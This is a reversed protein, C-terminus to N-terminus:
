GKNQKEGLKKKIAEALTENSRALESGFGHMSELFQAAYENNANEPDHINLYRIIAALDKEYQADETISSSAVEPGDGILKVQGNVILLAQDDTLIKVPRSATPICEALVERYKERNYHVSLLFPVLNFGTLDVLGHQEKQRKWNGMEITPCAIYSGASVGIYWKNQDELIKRVAAEFNCARAQKLLYFTNGGQVYIIDFKNLTEYATYDTLDGLDIDTVQFGANQLAARDREVYDTNAEMLSATIIHALKLEAPSKPLLNLVDKQITPMKIGASTLLLNM